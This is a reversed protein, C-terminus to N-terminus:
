RKKSPFAFSMDSGKGAILNEIALPLAQILDGASCGGTRKMGLDGARAHLFVGARAAEAPVVGRALLAGLIGSLADGCGPTAMGAHGSMANVSLDYRDPSMGHRMLPRPHGILTRAGKLILTVGWKRSYERTIEIRHAQVERSNSQILRGMEGPHPTFIRKGDLKRLLSRNKALVNLADADWVAPIQDAKLLAKVLHVTGRSIGLGPGVVLSTARKFLARHKKLIGSTLCTSSGAPWTMIEAGALRATISHIRSPVIVSVLGAGARLAARAALAPAGAMGMAGGIVLVHGMEGKHSNRKRTQFHHSVDEPAILECPSGIQDTLRRPFGIDLCRLDGVWDAAEELVLGFKPLGLTLTVDSRLACGMPKGRDASLGSPIDIAIVHLRSQKIERFLASFPEKLPRNLGTGFLGDLVIPRLGEKRLRGAAFQFARVMGSSIEVSVVRFGSKRLVRAAVRADMGNNGKGVLAIVGERVPDHQHTVWGAIATGAREILKREPTGGQVTEWDLDIMQETTVIKM